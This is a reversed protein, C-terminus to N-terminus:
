ILDYAENELVALLSTPGDFLIVSAGDVGSRPKSPYRVFVPVRHIIVPPEISAPNTDTLVVSCTANWTDWSGMLVVGYRM